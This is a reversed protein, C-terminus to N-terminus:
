GNLTAIEAAMNKRAGKEYAANVAPTHFIVDRELFRGMVASRGKRFDPEPVHSFELRINAAYRRYTAPTSGLISLDCDIFLHCAAALRGEPVVHKATALVMAVADDILEQPLGVARGFEALLEASKAENDSRTTDYVADHYFAALRLASTNKAGGFRELVDLFHGIHRWTHYHRGDSKYLSDLRRWHPRWQAPAIGLEKMLSLWYRKARSM